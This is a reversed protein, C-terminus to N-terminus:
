APVQPRGLTVVVVLPDGHLVAVHGVDAGVELLGYVEDTPQPSDADLNLSPLRCIKQNNENCPTKLRQEPRRFMATNIKQESYVEKTAPEAILLGATILKDQDGADLGGRGRAALIRENLILENGGEEGGGGGLNVGPSFIFRCFFGGASVRRPPEHAYPPPHSAFAQHRRNCLRM